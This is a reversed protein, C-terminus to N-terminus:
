DLEIVSAVRFTRMAGDHERFSVYEGPKFIHRDLKFGAEDDTDCKPDYDFAWVGGRKHILHGIEDPQGHWFRKVRCRERAKKWADQDLHGYPDLPAIFDYGRSKSGEPFEHDRALELRISSLKTV